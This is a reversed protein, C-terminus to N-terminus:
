QNEGLWSRFTDRVKSAWREQLTGWPHDNIVYTWTSSRDFSAPLESEPAFDEREFAEALDQELQQELREFMSTAEMLFTHLPDKGSWSVWHIGGRLEAIAALYDAWLDDMLHLTWKRELERLPQEGFRERLDGWREPIAREIVSAARRFLVETRRAQFERRQTELLGEYKWLTRRIELNQGEVIRQVTEIGERVWPARIQRGPMWQRRDRLVELIGYRLMLDDELSVFFRSSGPDGQRGARGRLQNDIRRAEHRNIGIVYLGGLARVADGGLPIDTGRGAMNTSITVAGLEGARAVIGAELEDNRANLVNHAVGARRVRASLRESEEVSATGVLVPRGTEYVRVIEEVVAREKSLRDGFVVDPEDVRIVPRNTPVVVAELGYVERFEVAQTAATGTMGCVAPYHKVLNQLTISGLIRGQQRLPLGEKAELATQLGAPWRRNQAIRGKFEDVLEIRENKVVYDVDRRLLAHAHLADQAATFATLNEPDFLNSWGGAAEVRAIGRDTFQANRGHQDIFYDLGLRMDRVLQAMRCALERPIQMGGAIVLPIRAEDILISDCEDILVFSFPRQVMHEPELALQDRLFDFGIENATAYTVDASYALRRESATSTQTIARAEIGLLEYAPRMWAADRRALYDNATWVHVGRGTLARHFVTMVATLTKGEGTQMEAIAGDNMVLAGLIQVDFPSMGLGRRIAEVALPFSEDVLVDARGRLGRALEAIRSDPENELTSARTRIAQVLPSYRSSDPPQAFDPRARM